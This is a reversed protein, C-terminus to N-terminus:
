AWGSPWWEFAAPYSEWARKVGIARIPAADKAAAAPPAAAPIKPVM